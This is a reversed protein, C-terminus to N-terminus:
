DAAKAAPVARFTYSAKGELMTKATKWVEEATISKFQDESIRFRALRRPDTQAEATLRAWTSNQKKWDAYAELTPKRAREFLDDNAPAALMEAVVADVAAEIAALDKPDGDTAITFTGRGPYISSMDSDASAGYTAGLKERLEDILRIQIISSLIDLSHQLRYDSDDTTTWIRRWSLQNAEGRHAVDHNGTSGSWTAKRAEAYGGAETKRPPMAGLTKAVLAIAADEDLSGTLGIEM